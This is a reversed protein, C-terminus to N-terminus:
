TFPFDMELYEDCQGSALLYAPVMYPGLYLVWVVIASGLSTRAQFTKDPLAWDKTAWAIGYSGHMIAYLM